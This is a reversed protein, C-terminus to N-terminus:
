CSEFARFWCFDWVLRLWIRLYPLRLTQRTCRECWDQEPATVALRESWHDPAPATQQHDPNRPNSSPVPPGDDLVITSRDIPSEEAPQEIRKKVATPDQDVQQAQKSAASAPQSVSGSAETSDGIASQQSQLPLTLALAAIVILAARKAAEVASKHV